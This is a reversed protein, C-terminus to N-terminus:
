PDTLASTSPIKECLSLHLLRQWTGYPLFRSPCGTLGTAITVLNPLLGLTKGVIFNEM